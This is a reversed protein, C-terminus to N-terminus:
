EGHTQMWVYVALPGSGGVGTPTYGLAAVDARGDGNFDAVHLKTEFQLRYELEITRSRSRSLGDAGGFLITIRRDQGKGVILDDIGDGDFDAVTPTDRCFTLPQAERGQGARDSFDLMASAKVGFPKEADGTNLYLAGQAARAGAALLVVDPLRDGNFDGVAMYQWDKADVLPVEQSPEMPISGGSQRLYLKGYSTLWDTRGDGNFDRESV